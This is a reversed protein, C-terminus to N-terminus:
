DSVQRSKALETRLEALTITEEREIEALGEELASLADPDSLVEATEQRASITEEVLGTYIEKPYL